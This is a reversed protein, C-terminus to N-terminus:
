TFFPADLLSQVYNSRGEGRKRNSPNMLKDYYEEKAPHKGSFLGIGTATGKSGGMKYEHSDQMSLLQVKEVLLQDREYKAKELDYQLKEIQQAYRAAAAQHSQFNQHLTKELNNMLEFPKEFTTEKTTGHIYYCDAIPKNIDNSDDDGSIAKSTRVCMWGKSVDSYYASEHLRLSGVHHVIGFCATCYADWCELCMKDARKVNCEICKGEHISQLEKKSPIEKTSWKHRTSKLSDLESVSVADPLNTNHKKAFHRDCYSAECDQCWKASNKHCISCPSLWTSEGTQTNYYYIAHNIDMCRVWFDYDVPKDKHPVLEGFRNELKSRKKGKSGENDKVFESLENHEPLTVLAGRSTDKEISSSKRPVIQPLNVTASSSSSSSIPSM